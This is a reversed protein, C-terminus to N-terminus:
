MRFNSFSFLLPADNDLTGNNKIIKFDYKTKGIKSNINQKM